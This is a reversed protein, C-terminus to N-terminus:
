GVEGTLGSADEVDDARDQRGSVVLDSDLAVGVVLGGDAGRERGVPLQGRGSGRGHKAVQDLVVSQGVAPRGGDPEPGGAGDGFALVGLCQGGVTADVDHSQ